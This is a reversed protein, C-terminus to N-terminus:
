SRVRAWGRLQHLNARFRVLEESVRYHDAAADLSWGAALLSRLEAKPVLIASGLLYAEEEQRRDYSRRLLGTPTHRTIASPRHRLHVHGIEEMLTARRRRESHVPNLVVVVTGDPLHCGLGSWARAADGVLFRLTEPSLQCLAAPSVVEIGLMGAIELPDVPGGADLGLYARLRRAEKEVLHKLIYHPAAPPFISVV